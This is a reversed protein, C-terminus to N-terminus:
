HLHGDSDWRLGRVGAEAHWGAHGHLDECCADGPGPAGCFVPRAREPQDASSVLASSPEVHPCLTGLAQLLAAAVAPASQADVASFNLRLTFWERPADAAADYWLPDALASPDV